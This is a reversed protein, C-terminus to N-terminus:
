NVYYVTWGTWWKTGGPAAAGRYTTGTVFTGAATAMNGTFTALGGTAALSGAQPTWDFSAASTAPLTLTTFQQAATATTNRVLNRATSDALSNTHFLAPTELALINRADFTGETVRTLTAADRISLAAKPWRAVLGNVYYGGTGRRLVMAYGGSTPDVDTGAGPGVLTFNAVVPTTLPTSNQGNDCGAGACGDNEIGQPDSSANGAGPRPIVLRSQYAILYQLRGRYGESMDFHDDGSEYSVFYKGDVTGGFWEFSDDLGNMVQLYEMTTGSGVAAFTFSNLEADTATAYGAFEVRVYRLTGSNDTDTTGGSYVQQPNSPGTGTGELVVTGSRNSTANGIIILGGWDGAQRSGVPRESTFVIPEAATGNAVLRAGRTVFLASGVTEFDGVIRTGAPITLTAGNTVKIFGQLTYVTDKSLTRNTTIDASIVAAGPEVPGIPDEDNNCASLAATALLAAGLARMSKPRIM